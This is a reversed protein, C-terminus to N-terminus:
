KKLKMYKSLLDCKMKYIEDDPVALKQLLFDVPVSSIGDLDPVAYYPLDVVEKSEKKDKSLVNDLHMVRYRNCMNILTYETNDKLQQSFACSANKLGFEIDFLTPDASTVKLAAIFFWADQKYCYLSGSLEQSKWVKSMDTEHCSIAYMVNSNYMETYMNEWCNVKIDLYSDLHILGVLEGECNTNAYKIMEGYTPFKNHNVVTIKSMDLDPLKLDPATMFLIIRKVFPNSLNMGLATDYELQRKSDTHQFYHTILTIKVDTMADDTDDRDVEIKINEGQDEYKPLVPPDLPKPPEIPKSPHNHHPLNSLAPPSSPSSASTESSPSSALNSASKPSLADTLMKQLVIRNNQILDILHKVVTADHQPTKQLQYFLPESRSYYYVYQKFLTASLPSKIVVVEIQARVGKLATYFFSNQTLCVLKSTAQYFIWSDNDIQDEIVVANTIPNIILGDRLLLYPLRASKLEALNEDPGEYLIFPRNINYKKLLESVTTKDKLPVTPNGILGFYGKPLSNVLQDM